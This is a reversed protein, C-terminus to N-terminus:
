RRSDRMAGTAQEIPSLGHQGRTIDARWSAAMAGRVSPNSRRFVPELTLAGVSDEPAAGGAGEADGCDGDAGPAGAGYMPACRLQLPEGARTSLASSMEVTGWSGAGRYAPERMGGM